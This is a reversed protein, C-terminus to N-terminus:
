NGRALANRERRKQLGFDSINDEQLFDRHGCTLEDSILMALLFLTSLEFNHVALQTLAQIGVAAPFWYSTRFYFIHPILLVHLV